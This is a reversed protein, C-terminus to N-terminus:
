KRYKSYLMGSICNPSNSNGQKQQAYYFNQWCPCNYYAAREACNTKCKEACLTVRLLIGLGIWLCLLFGSISKGKKLCGRNRYELRPFFNNRWKLIGTSFYTSLYGEVCFCLVFICKQIETRKMLVFFAFM